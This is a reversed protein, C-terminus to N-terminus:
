PPDPTMASGYSARALWVRGFTSNLTQSRRGLPRFSQTSASMTAHCDDVLRVSSDRMVALIEELVHLFAAIRQSCGSEGHEVVRRAPDPQTSSLHDRLDFAAM